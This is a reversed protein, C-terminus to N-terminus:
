LDYSGSCRISRDVTGTTAPFETTGFYGAAGGSSAKRVAIAGTTQMEVGFFDAASFVINSIVGIAGPRAAAPPYPVLTNFNLQGTATTYNNCRLDVHLTWYLRNNVIRYEFVRNAGYTPAFDGNTGFTATPVTAFTKEINYRGSSLSAPLSIDFDCRGINIDHNGNNAITLGPGGGSGKGPFQPRQISADGGQIDIFGVTRTVNAGYGIRLAGADLTGSTQRIIPADPSGLFLNTQGLQLRAGANLIYPVSGTTPMFGVIQGFVWTGGTLSAIFDTALTSTKILSGIALFQSVGEVRSRDGDLILSRIIGFTGQGSSTFFLLRAGFTEISMDFEDCRGSYLGVTNGDQYAPKRTADDFGWPWFVMTGGKVFDQAGDLWFGRDLAGIEITGFVELGGVNGDAQVGRWAGSIRIDGLVCRSVSSIRIAVPYQIMGARTSVLPQEFAVGLGLFGAGSNAALTGIRLVADQAMNFNSGVVFYSTQRGDGVIRMGPTNIYIRDSIRYGGDLDPMYVNRGRRAAETIARAFAATWDVDIALKFNLVNVSLGAIASGITNEGHDATPDFPIIMAGDVALRSMDRLRDAM